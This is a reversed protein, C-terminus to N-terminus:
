INLFVMVSVKGDIRSIDLIPFNDLWAFCKWFMTTKLQSCYEMQRLLSVRRSKWVMALLLSSLPEYCRLQLQFKCKRQRRNTLPTCFPCIPPLTTIAPQPLLPAQQYSILIYFYVLGASPRIGASVTVSAPWQSDGARSDGVLREEKEGLRGESLPEFITWLITLHSNPFYIFVSM